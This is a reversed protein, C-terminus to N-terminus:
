PEASSQEGPACDIVQNNRCFRFVTFVVLAIGLTAGTMDAFWDALDCHRGVLPQTIEDVIGYAGIILWTTIAARKTMAGRTLRWATLLMALGFYATFHLVKDSQEALSKPIRPLHTGFFLALWYGFLLVGLAIGFRRIWRESAM